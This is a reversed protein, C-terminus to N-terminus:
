PEVDIRVYAYPGLELEDAADVPETGARFFAPETAARVFSDEDLRRVTGIGAPFGVIRCRQPAPSLNAALLVVCGGTRLALAEVALPASSRAAVVEGDRRECLDALVHFLPFAMGPLSRFPAPSGEDAEAV